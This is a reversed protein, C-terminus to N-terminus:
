AVDCMSEVATTGLLCMAERFCLAKMFDFIQIKDGLMLTGSKM